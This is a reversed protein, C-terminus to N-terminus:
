LYSLAYKNNKIYANAIDVKVFFVVSYILSLIAIWGHLYKAASIIRIQYYKLKTITTLELM